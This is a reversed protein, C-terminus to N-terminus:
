EKGAAGHGLAAPCVAQLEEISHFISLGWKAAEWMERDAGLSPGAIRLLADCCHLLELDYELWQEYPRPQIFHQFHSWHPCIPCYGAEWLRDWYHMANHVNEAVDGQSYPGAIYVRTRQFSMTAGMDIFGM